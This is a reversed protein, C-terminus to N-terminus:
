TQINGPTAGHFMEVRPTVVVLDRSPDWEWVGANAGEQILELWVNSDQLSEQALRLENAQAEATRQLRQVEDLLLAIDAPAFAGDGEVQATVRALVDHLDGSAAKELRPAPRREHEVTM